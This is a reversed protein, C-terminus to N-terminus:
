PRPQASRALFLSDAVVVEGTGKRILVPNLDCEAIKGSLDSAIRSLRALLDAFAGVDTRPVLNRYGGLLRGLRTSAIMDRAQMPSIPALRFARDSYLEVMTGGTGVIMLAGFPPAAIFGALAEIHDTLEQQLEFGDIRADPVAERVNQAIRATADRLARVDSIGRQVGGIDSRHAIDRSAVKVVLPYGISDAHKVAADASVAIASRVLPIDYQRLIRNCLEV